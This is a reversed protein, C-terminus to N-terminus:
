RKITCFVERNQLRLNRVSLSSYMGGPRPGGDVNISLSLGQGEFRLPAGMLHPDNPIRVVQYSRTQSGGNEEQWLYATAKDQGMLCLHIHGDASEDDNSHCDINAYSCLGGGYGEQGAHASLTSLALSLTVLLTKM